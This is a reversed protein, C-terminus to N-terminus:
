GAASVQSVARGLASLSNPVEGRGLQRGRIRGLLVRRWFTVPHLEWRVEVASADGEPTVTWEWRAHSPNGDDTGSRCVFRRADPDFIECRSRSRWSRGLVHFEVVWEAGPELIEPVECMKTMAANWSPLGALDTLKCFVAAPSAEIVATTQGTLTTM